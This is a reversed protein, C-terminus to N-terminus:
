NSSFLQTAYWSGDASLAVGAGLDPQGSLMNMLHGPSFSWMRVFSTAVDEASSSAGRMGTMAVNERSLQRSTRFATQYRKAQDGNKFADHSIKGAAGMDKSWQRAIYGLKADYQMPKRGFKARVGNTKEVILYEIECIKQEAQICEV